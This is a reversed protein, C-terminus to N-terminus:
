IGYVILVGGRREWRGARSGPRHPSTDLPGYPGLEGSSGPDPAPAAPAAAPAPVLVQDAPAPPPEPM